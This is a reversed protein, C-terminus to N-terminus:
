CFEATERDSVEEVDSVVDFFEGLFFTFSLMRPDMWTSRSSKLTRAMTESNSDDPGADKFARLDYPCLVTGSPFGGLSELVLFGVQRGISPLAVSWWRSRLAGGRDDWYGAAAPGALFPM